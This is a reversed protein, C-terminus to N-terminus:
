EKRKREEEEEEARGCYHQVFRHVHHQLDVHRHHNPHEVFVRRRGQADTVETKKLCKSSKM